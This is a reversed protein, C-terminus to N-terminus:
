FGGKMCVFVCGHVGHVSGGPALSLKFAFETSGSFHKWWIDHSLFIRRSGPTTIFGTVTNVILQSDICCHLSASVAEDSSWTIPVNGVRKKNRQTLRLWTRATEGSLGITCCVPVTFSVTDEWVGQEGVLMYLFVCVMVMYWEVMLFHVCM